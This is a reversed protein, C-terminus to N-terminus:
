WVKVEVVKFTATKMEEVDKPAMITFLNTKEKAGPTLSYVAGNDHKIRVGDADYADIKFQVTQSESTKNTVIVELKTNVSYQSVEEVEFEKWEIDFDKTWDYEDENEEEEDETIGSNFFENANDEIQEGYKEASDEFEQVLSDGFNQIFSDVGKLLLKQAIYTSLLAVVAIVLAAIVLGKKQKQVLAIIGLVIGVTGLLYSFINVLPIFSIVLAIIGLILAAVALGNKSTEKVEEKTEVVVKKEEEM